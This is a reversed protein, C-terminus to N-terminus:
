GRERVSVRERVRVRKERVFECGHRANLGSPTIKKESMRVGSGAIPM